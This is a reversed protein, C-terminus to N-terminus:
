CCRGLFDALAEDIDDNLGQLRDAALEIARPNVGDGDTDDDWCSGVDSNCVVREAQEAVADGLAAWRKAFEILEQADCDNM